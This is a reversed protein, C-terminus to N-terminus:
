CLRQAHSQFDCHRHNSEAGPCWRREVAKRLSLQLGASDLKASRKPLMHIKPTVADVTKNRPRESAPLARYSRSNSEGHGNWRHRTRLVEAGSGLHPEGWVDDPEDQGHEDRDQEERPGHDVDEGFM